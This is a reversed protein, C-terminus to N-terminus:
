KASKLMEIRLLKERNEKNQMKAVYL